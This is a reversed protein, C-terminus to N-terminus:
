NNVGVDSCVLQAICVYYYVNFLIRMEFWKFKSLNWSNQCCLFTADSWVSVQEAAREHCQNYFTKGTHEVVRICLKAM